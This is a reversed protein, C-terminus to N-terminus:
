GGPPFRDGCFRREVELAEEELPGFPYGNELCEGLYAELFPRLGGLREYQTTHVLEHLILRRSGWHDARIFIGYRLTLGITSTPIWGAREAVSRLVPHIPWPMADVVQLRVRDVASVGIQVADERLAPLLPVGERLIRAEQERAWRVVFPLLVQIVPKRIM